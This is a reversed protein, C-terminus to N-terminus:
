VALKITGRRQKASYYFSVEKRETPSSALIVGTINWSEGTGDEREMSKILMRIIQGDNTSFVVPFPKDYPAFLSFMLDMNGPGGVITKHTRLNLQSM